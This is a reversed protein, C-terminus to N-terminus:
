NTLCTNLNSILNVKEQKKLKLALTLQNLEKFYRSSLETSMARRKMYNIFLSNLDRPPINFILQKSKEFQNFSTMEPLEGYYDKVISRYENTHLVDMIADFDVNYKVESLRKVTFKKQSKINYTILGVSEDVKNYYSLKSEPIILFVENFIKKYNELQIELRIDSDFETKIEFVKSSGNFIALDAVSKAVRFESFITAKNNKLEPILWETLFSNKVIYENAYNTELISYVYKLYDKYTYKKQNLWDKDYRNIKKNFSYFNGKQWTVVEARSFLASYDRLQNQSFTKM